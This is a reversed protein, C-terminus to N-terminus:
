EALEVREERNTQEDWYEAWRPVVQVLALNPTEPGKLFWRQLQDTWRTEILQRDRIIEARGSLFLYRQDSDTAFYVGVNPNAQIDRGKETDLRTMFWIERTNVDGLALMPRASPIGDPSVTVLAGVRFRQLMRNLYERREDM